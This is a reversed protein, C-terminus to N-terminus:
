TEPTLNQSPGDLDQYPTDSDDRRFVWLVGAGFFTASVLEWGLEAAGNLWDQIKNESFQSDTTVKVKYELSM